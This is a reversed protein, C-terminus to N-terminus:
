RPRQALRKLHWGFARMVLLHVVAQTWRYIVWPLCPRFDLVAAFVEQGVPSQRFELRAPARGDEPRGRGHLLGGTIYYLPRDPTSRGHSFSLELLSKEVGAVVFRVNLSADVEARICWRMQLPLWRAYEHAVWLADKGVPLALRQISVVYGAQDTHYDRRTIHKRTEPNNSPSCAKPDLACRIAQDFGTAPLGSLERLEHKRVVLSHKLSDVLPRVLEIHAGTVWHLWWASLAPSFYPVPLIMRPKGMLEATRKMMDLYSMVEPTGVEYTKGFVEARGICYRFYAVIDSLAVPQTLSRTWSPCVMIPLRHILKLVIQFSSGGVGLVVGARLVTVPLGRAALIREVELRSELHDSLPREEPILGGLYLIQKVGSKACARAFNDALIFDMDRFTAQTLRAPLMSHVLYVAYDAGAVAREVQLLSFLDCSRWAVGDHEGGASRSLATIQFDGSLAGILAKGVFGSAGAIVIKARAPTQCESM